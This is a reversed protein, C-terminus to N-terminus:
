AAAKFPYGEIADKYPAVLAPNERGETGPLFERLLFKAGNGLIRERYAQWDSATIGSAIVRGTIAADISAAEKIAQARSTELAKTEWDSLGHNEEPSSYRSKHSPSHM